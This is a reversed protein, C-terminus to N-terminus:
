ENKLPAQRKLRKNMRNKALNRGGSQLDDIKDESLHDEKNLVPRLAGELKIVSSYTFMMAIPIDANLKQKLRENIQVIDLSTAGLDFFRAREDIESLGLQHKLVELITQKVSTKAELIAKEAPGSKVRVKSRESEQLRKNIPLVSVAMREPYYAIAQLFLAQGEQNTLGITENSDQINKAAMGVELWRDWAISHIRFPSEQNDTLADLYANAAVYASQGSAGHYSLLSSCFLMSRLDKDSFYSILNDAGTVKAAMIERHLALDPQMILAGADSGASHIVMSFKGLESEIATLLVHLATKCSVDVQHIHVEGGLQEIREISAIKSATEVKTPDNKIAEWKSRDPFESRSALILRAKYQDALSEAMKLGIGGLGGSIFVLGGVNLEHCKNVHVLQHAPLPKFEPIWLQGHRIAAQRYKDSSAITRILAKLKNNDALDQMAFDIQMAQHKQYELPISWVLGKLLSIAPLAQEYGLVNEIEPTFLIFRMSQLPISSLLTRLSDVWQLYHEIPDTSFERQDPILVFTCEATVKLSALKDLEDIFFVDSDPWLVKALTRRNPEATRPCLLFVSQSQKVEETQFNVERQWGPLYTSSQDPDVSHRKKNPGSILRDRIKSYETQSFQYVPLHILNGKQQNINQWYIENSACGIKALQGYFYEQDDEPLKPHRLANVVLPKNENKSQFYKQTFSSLTNGPGVEIFILDNSESLTELCGLFDVKQRQHSLWYDPQMIEEESHWTGTLNSLVPIYPKSFNITSLTEAYETQIEDITRSHFAHSTKLRRCIIGANQLLSELREIDALAGSVVISERGNIAAVELTDDLYDQLKEMGLPVSLMTGPSMRQMLRARQSVLHLADDLSFVGSVTAAVYEGLSHGLLAYPKFGKSELLRTTAYEVVFIALQTIESSADNQESAGIFFDTLEKQQDEPLLHLCQHISDKFTKEHQYLGYAMGQYQTGQGPYLFIIKKGTYEVKGRIFDSECYSGQSESCILVSRHSFYERGNQLTYAIDSLTDKKDALRDLLAKEMMALSSENKASLPLLTLREAPESGSPQFLSEELVIHANTGGIGFSSVGARRISQSVWEQSNQNIYFPSSELKIQPNPNTFYQNACLMKNKLMLATKILGAMGAASDLHGVISKVSGIAISKAPCGPFAKKLASIEIPDGLKTATGHAEIYSISEPDIKSMKIASSIVDAQGEISPATYGVKRAGDNNIATGKILALIPRKDALAQKLPQLVVAGIGEGGVTGNAKEDFPRCVGEPSTIMGDQYLYGQQNPTVLAAAAVLVMQCEGLLLARAAMHIATLSSSCATQLSVAPGTLGLKYALRTAAFDKEVLNFASFLSAGDQECEEYAAMQWQLQASATLYCGVKGAYVAPVLGASGLAEFGCEHLKRIQPELFEAERKNYNFFDADFAMPKDIVGKANVYNNSSYDKKPVGNKALIEDSFRTICDNGELCNKWFSEITPSNPFRCSVGVIAIELGTLDQHSKNNLNERQSM